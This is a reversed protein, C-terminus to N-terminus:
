RRPPWSRSEQRRVLRRRMVCRCRFSAVASLFHAARPSPTQSKGPASAFAYLAFQGDADESLRYLATSKGTPIPFHEAPFLDTQAALGIAVSKIRELMARTMAGGAIVSKAEAIAAAVAAARRDLLSVSM